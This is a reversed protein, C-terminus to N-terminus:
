IKLWKINEISHKWFYKLLFVTRNGTTKNDTIKNGTIKDCTIKDCTIKKGTIINTIINNELLLNNEIAVLLQHEWHRRFEIPRFGLFLRM